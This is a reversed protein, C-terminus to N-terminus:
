ISNITSVSCCIEVEDYAKTVPNSFNQIYGLYNRGGCVYEDFKSQFDRCHGCCSGLWTRCNESQKEILSRRNRIFSKSKFYYYTVDELSLSFFNKLKRNGSEKIREIIKKNNEFKKRDSITFNKPDAKEKQNLLEIWKYNFIEFLSMRLTERVFNINTRSNYGLNPLNKMKFNKLNRDRSIMANIKDLIFDNRHTQIKKYIAEKAVIKYFKEHKEEIFNKNNESLIIIKEQPTRCTYDENEELAYFDEDASFVSNIEIEEDENQNQNDIEPSQTFNPKNEIIADNNLNTNKGNEGSSTSITTSNYEEQYPSNCFDFISDHNFCMNLQREMVQFEKKEFDSYCDPFELLQSSSDM